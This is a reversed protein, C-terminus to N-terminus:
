TQQLRISQAALGAMLCGWRCGCPPAEAGCCFCGGGRCCFWGACWAFPRSAAAAGRCCWRHPHRLLQATVWQPEDQQSVVGALMCTLVTYDHPATGNRCRTPPLSCKPDSPRCQRCPMVWQAPDTHRVKLTTRTTGCLRLTTCAEMREALTHFVAPRV